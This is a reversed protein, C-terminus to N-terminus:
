EYHKATVIVSRVHNPGMGTGYGGSAGQQPQTHTPELYRCAAPRKHGCQPQLKRPSFPM